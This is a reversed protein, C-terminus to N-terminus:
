IDIPYPFDGGNITTLLTEAAISDAEYPMNNFTKSLYIASVLANDIDPCPFRRHIDGAKDVYILAFDGDPLLELEDATLIDLNKVTELLQKNDKNGEESLFGRLGKLSIDNSIDVKKQSFKYMNLEKFM